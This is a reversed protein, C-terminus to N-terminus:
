VEELYAEDTKIELNLNNIKSEFDPITLENLIKIRDIIPQAERLKNLTEQAKNLQIQAADVLEPASDYSKQLREIFKDKDESNTWGRICLPCKGSDKCDAIYSKYMMMQSKLQGVNELINNAKNQLQSVSVDYSIDECVHSVSNKKEKLESKLNELSENLVSFKAKKKSINDFIKKFQVESSDLESKRLMMFDQAFSDASALSDVNEGEASIQNKIELFLKEYNINKEDLSSKLAKSKGILESNKRSNVVHENITFIENEAKNLESKKSKIISEYNKDEASRKLNSLSSTESELRNKLEKMKAKLEDVDFIKGKLSLINNKDKNKKNLLMDLEKNLSAKQLEFSQTEKKLADTKESIELNLSKIETELLNHHNQVTKFAENALSNSINLGNDIIDQLDSASIPISKSIRKQKTIIELILLNRINIHQDLSKKQSELKGLYIKKDNLRNQTQDLELNVEDLSSKSDSINKGWNKKESEQEDIIKYLESTTETMVNLHKETELINNQLSDKEHNLTKIKSEIESFSSIYEEFVSLQSEIDTQKQKIELIQSELEHSKESSSEIQLKLKDSKKKNEGFHKLDNSFLKLSVSQDKRLKKITEVAKTYRTASFIDDFRKKLSLPESLPWNSEEQHCFIVNELIAKSIGLRLPIETDLEACKSSISVREQGTSKDEPIFLVSELTQFSITTKKQTVQLSRTCVM